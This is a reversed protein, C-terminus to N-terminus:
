NSNINQKFDIFKSNTGAVILLSLRTYKDTVKPYLAQVQFVLNPKRKENM